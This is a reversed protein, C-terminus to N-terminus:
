NLRSALQEARFPKALYGDMGAAHCADRDSGMAHATLAIIPLRAADTDGEWERITRTAELGDVQPMQVDMLVVDFDYAAVAEVAAAGDEVQMVRHGRKELIRAALLRNTASDDALLVELPRRRERLWHRTVLTAAPASGSSIAALAERVDAGGLPKTLYARVGAARFRTGDGRRGAGVVVLMPVGDLLESEVLRRCYGVDPEAFDVILAGPRRGEARLSATLTLAEAASGVGM